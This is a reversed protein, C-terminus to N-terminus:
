GTPLFNVVQNFLRWCTSQSRVTWKQLCSFFRSLAIADPLTFLDTRQQHLAQLEADTPPNMLSSLDSAFAEMKQAMRTRIVDDDQDLVMNLAERYFIEQRLHRDIIAVVDEPAPDRKWQVKWFTELHNLRSQDIVITDKNDEASTSPSAWSWASFLLGGLVAFHIPM